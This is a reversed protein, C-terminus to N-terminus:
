DRILGRERMFQSAQTAWANLRDYIGQLRHLDAQTSALQDRLMQNEALLADVDVVPAAPRLRRQLSRGFNAMVRDNEASMRGLAYGALGSIGPSHLEDDM